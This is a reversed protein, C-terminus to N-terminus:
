RHDGSDTHAALWTLKDPNRIVRIATIHADNTSFVFVSDLVGHL